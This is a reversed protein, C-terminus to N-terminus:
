AKKTCTRIDEENLINQAVIDIVQAVPASLTSCMNYQDGSIAYIILKEPLQNFAKALDIAQSVSLGHTSTQPADLPIPHLRADIRQWSGSLSDTFCADILYVTSHDAFVDILEAIDGSLKCLKVDAPVKGKLADIVAWGAGDDGRFPNGLGIVFPNSM